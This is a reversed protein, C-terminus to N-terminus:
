AAAVTQQIQQLKGNCQCFLPEKVITTFGIKQKNKSDLYWGAFVDFLFGAGLGTALDITYHGRSALLRVAQLVNLIDFGWAMKYREMRRMDLSAIMSGAVHGSYFLFFSVNGVPFDMGSGLFGDPLPLQTSTGLIGRCTFMFLAAITARPRGEVLLCWLIYASQMGVFVTNLAALVSNLNPSDVLVAHLPRTMLFGLDLPQSASPVMPITYEVAMFFLLCMLFAFPAPHRKVLEVVDAVSLTAFAPLVKDSSKTKEVPQTEETRTPSHRRRSRLKSNSM